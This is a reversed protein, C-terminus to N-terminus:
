SQASQAVLRWWPLRAKTALPQCPVDGGTVHRHSHSGPHAPAVHSSGTQVSVPRGVPWGVSQPAPAFTLTPQAGAAKRTAPLGSSGFHLWDANAATPLTVAAPPTCDYWNKCLASACLEGNTGCDDEADAVCRFGITGAREYSGGM